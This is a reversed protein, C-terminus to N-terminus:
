AQVSIASKQFPATATPLLLKGARIAAFIKMQNIKAKPVVWMM